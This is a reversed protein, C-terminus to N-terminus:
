ILQFGEFDLFAEEMSMKRVVLAEVIMRPQSQNASPAAANDHTGLASVLHETHNNSDGKLTIISNSLASSFPTPSAFVDNDGDADDVVGEETAPSVQQCSPDMDVHSGNPAVTVHLSQLGAVLEETTEPITHNKGSIPHQTDSPAVPPIGAYGESPLPSGSGSLSNDAYTVLANRKEARRRDRAMRRTARKRGHGPPPLVLRDEPSAPECAPSMMEMFQKTNHKRLKRKDKMEVQEDDFLVSQAAHEGGSSLRTRFPRPKFVSSIELDLLFASPGNKDLASTPPLDDEFSFIAPNADEIVWESESETTSTGTTTGETTTGGDDDYDLSVAEGAM